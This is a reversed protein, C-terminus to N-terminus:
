FLRSSTIRRNIIAKVRFWSLIRLPLKKTQLLKLLEKSLEFKSPKKPKLSGIVQKTLMQRDKTIKVPSFKLSTKPPGLKRRLNATMSQAQTKGIQPTKKITTPLQPDQISKNFGKIGNPLNSIRFEKIRPSFTRIKKPPTVLTITSLNLRGVRRSLTKNSGKKQLFWTGNNKSPAQNRPGPKKFHLVRSNKLQRRSLKIKYRRNFLTCTLKGGTILTAAKPVRGAMIGISRETGRLGTMGTWRLLNSSKKRRRRCRKLLIAKRMATATIATRPTSSNPTGIISSRCRKRLM